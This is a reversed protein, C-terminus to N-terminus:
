LYDYQIKKDSLIAALKANIKNFETLTGNIRLYFPFITYFNM